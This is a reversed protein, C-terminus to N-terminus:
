HFIQPLALINKWLDSIIIINNFFTFMGIEKRLMSFNVFHIILFIQFRIDRNRKDINRAIFFFLLHLCEVSGYRGRFQLVLPKVKRELRCM